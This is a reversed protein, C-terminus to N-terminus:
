YRQHSLRASRERSRVLMGRDVMATSEVEVDAFMPFDEAVVVLEDSALEESYLQPAALHPSRSRRLFNGSTPALGRPYVGIPKECGSPEAM